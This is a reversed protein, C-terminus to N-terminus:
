LLLENWMKCTLSANYKDNNTLFSFIVCAVTKPQKPNEQGFFPFTEEEADDFKRKKKRVSIADSLKPYKMTQSVSFSMENSQRKKSDHLESPVRAQSDVISTQKSITPSMKNLPQMQIVAIDSSTKSSIVSKVLSPTSIEQSSRRPTDEISSLTSIPPSKLASPSIEISPRKKQSVPIDLSVNTAVATTAEAAARIPPPAKSSSIAPTKTTMMTPTPSQQRLVTRPNSFGPTVTNVNMPSYVIAGMMPPGLYPPRSYQPVNGSPHGRPPLAFSGSAGPPPRYSMPPLHSHSQQQTSGKKWTEHNIRMAFDAGKKDKM